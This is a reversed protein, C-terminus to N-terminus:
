IGESIYFDKSNNFRDPAVIAQKTKTKNFKGTMKSSLTQVITEKIDRM